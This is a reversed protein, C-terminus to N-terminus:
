KQVESDRLTDEGVLHTRLSPPCGKDTFDGLISHLRAKTLQFGSMVAYEIAVIHEDVSSSPWAYLTIDRKGAVEKVGHHILLAAAHGAVESIQESNWEPIPISELVQKTVHRDVFRRVWWDCIFSNMLGLLALIKETDTDAPIRVGHVYGKSYMYGSGPLATAILTRHDDNRSPYRYVIAPHDEGLHPHGDYVRVGLQLAALDSPQEVFRRFKEEVAIRFADVHRTMLVRWTDETETDTVFHKHTGTTSFDWRSSDARGTIWGDGKGLRPFARLLNFPEQDDPSGFWPVVAKDTLDHIESHAMEVVNDDTASKLQETSLVGPWIRIPGSGGTRTLLIIMLSWHVEEFLWGQKNRAQLVTVSSDNLIAKRLDTWGGLVLAPRPLVYGLTGKEHQVSLAREVFLKAFDHHGHQGRGQLEYAKDILKQLKERSESERTEAQADLPREIRLRAIEAKQRPESLAHLGPARVVWFQQAEMRVKDWPPNGVIVDFGSRGRLFVEPFAVPFHLAQMNDAVKHAHDTDTEFLEEISLAEPLNTEEVRAAVILDFIRTVPDVASKAEAAAERAESIDKLTADSIQALRRLPEEAERLAKRLPEEFLSAQGSRSRALAETAEEITSIGTLSHGVVLNHDLFSLPLGPVFTHIWMGVRALEVSLPNMDVGYVCRRAILRRLLSSNEIEITEALQGLAENATDHLRDLEASVEPIPYEALFTTYRAELRDVVATLFHGSGMAIDAVRFDFLLEAADAHKDADLLERIRDLHDDLTPDISHSLLHDVAFPKTFYSGTSKRVGSQNHLYVNGSEVVVDDRGRAPLYVGGSDITLPQEAVSLESELLGEYITGFERVSLSRFDIPGIAGDPSRDVILAMLAPGFEANTLFLQEINEGVPSISEDTSFLGGNYAPVGWPAHGKDVAKFLARCEDWLYTQNTDMAREVEATLPNDFGLERGDNITDSLRRAITKLAHDTYEGNIHLPLLRSDEAYAVFMLRFLITLATRYHRELDDEETGGLQRSVAVALRPVVDKYVRERLRASLESTFLSSAQQIQAISGGEALANSSFLLELYGAQESPLLPLNLEVFTEARGRQGSAGSTSTSYLRLAGEREAIVWPLNDRDAHSLAYTVPTQNEFRAAPHDAQESDQLFVAVAQARGKSSRLVNHHGRAEVEYGLREVLTQGRERLLPESRATAGEWDSREPVGHLLEHTALLGKNRLGPHEDPEGELAEALFRIALQRHPEELAAASLREAHGYDLEVVSPDEGAPGCVMTQHSQSEPYAVVALLPAARHGHRQKWVERVATKSPKTGATGYVVELGDRGPGTWRYAPSIGKSEAFPDRWRGKQASAESLFRDNLM